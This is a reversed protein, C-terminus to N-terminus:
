GGFRQLVQLLRDPSVPKVLHEDFRASMARARDNDRGYGTLAVLRIGAGQPTARIAEALQYGDMGPLGIDLLAVQPTYNQLLALAAEGDPACQADFGDIRLLEALTESADTNDDVILVRLGGTTGTTEISEPM